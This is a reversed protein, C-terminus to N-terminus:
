VQLEVPAQRILLEAVVAVQGFPASATFGDGIENPVLLEHGEVELHGRGHQHRVRVGLHEDLAGDLDRPLRLTRQTHCVHASAAAAYGDGDRMVGRLDLDPRAVDTALRELDSRSIDGLMPQGFAHM